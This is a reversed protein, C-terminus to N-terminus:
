VVLFPAVGSLVCSQLRIDTVIVKKLYSLSVWDFNHGIIRPNRTCYSTLNYSLITDEGDLQIPGKPM